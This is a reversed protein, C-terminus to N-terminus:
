TWKRLRNYMTHSTRLVWKVLIKTKMDILYVKKGMNLFKETYELARKFADKNLM